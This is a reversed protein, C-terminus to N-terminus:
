GALSAASRSVTDFPAGMIAIDLAKEAMEEDSFCNVYPLNAFSRLGHFQSGTLIDVDGEEDVILRQQDYHERRLGPAPPLQWACCEVVLSAILGILIQSRM